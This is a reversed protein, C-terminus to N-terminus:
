AQRLRILTIEPRSFFRMDIGVTGLGRNTYHWMGDTQYLGRPFRECMPPVHIPLGGPLCIQGGHSHGSLMLGFKRNRAYDLAFDPEHALLVAAEGDKIQAEIKAIDPSGLWPDDVGGLHLKAGDREFTHVKNFLEHVGGAKMAASMDCGRALEGSRVDHNGRVGFVGERAKLKPLHHAFYAQSWRNPETMFDGTVVICDSQLATIRECIRPFHARMTGSEIHIDSIQAITFGDFERPLHRLAIDLHTTQTWNPEVREAWQYSGVAVVGLGIAGRVFRRRTMRPPNPSSM